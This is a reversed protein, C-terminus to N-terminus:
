WQSYVIWQCEEVSYLLHYWIFKNCDEMLKKGLHNRTHKLQQILIRCAGQPIQAVLSYGPPLDVRTYLGNISRCKGKM